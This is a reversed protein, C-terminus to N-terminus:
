SANDDQPSVNLGAAIVGVSVASQRIPAQQERALPEQPVMDLMVEALKRVARPADAHRRSSRGGELEESTRSAQGGRPQLLPKANSLGDINKTARM